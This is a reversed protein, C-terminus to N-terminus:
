QTKESSEETRGAMLAFFFLWPRIRGRRLKDQAAEVSDVGDQAGVRALLEWPRMRRQRQKDQAGM